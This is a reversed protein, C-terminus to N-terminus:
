FNNASCRRELLHRRQKFFDHLGTGCHENLTLAAGAFLQDRARQVIVPRTRFFVKDNLVTRREVVVQKLTRQKTVDLAGKGSSHFILFAQKLHGVLARKEEVFDAIHRCRQLHFQQPHQLFAREGWDAADLRNLDIDADNRCRM